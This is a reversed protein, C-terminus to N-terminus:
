GEFPLYPTDDYRPLSRDLLKKFQPWSDSARMLTTVSALHERLKPHGVSETLRQFLKHKLRGKEDRPTLRHLEERVGPALRDYVVDNTIGGVLVPRKRQDAPLEPFKWGRLRFLEKYYDVPFTSVWKRLEKAIFAELIKALADKARVDQYGTAEDVLAIIGTEALGRMLIDAKAAIPLQNHKLVRADRASLWVDCIKPLIEAPVGHATSAGLRYVIPKTVVMSLEEPIFPKLNAAGLYIPLEGGRRFDLGGHRRGLARGVGRQSLVRQGDSLVACELKLDGIAIEGAHTAVPTPEKGAKAWRAEIAARAIEQRREPSLKAARAAGGKAAGLDSLKKAAESTLRGPEESMGLVKYMGSFSTLIIRSKRGSCTYRVPMIVGRARVSAM